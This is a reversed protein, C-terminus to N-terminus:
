NVCKSGNLCTSCYYHVGLIIFSAGHSYNHSIIRLHLSYHETTNSQSPQRCSVSCVNKMNGARRELELVTNRFALGADPFLTITLWGFVQSILWHRNRFVASVNVQILLFHLVLPSTSQCGVSLEQAAKGSTAM